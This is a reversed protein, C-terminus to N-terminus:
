RRAPALYRRFWEAALRVVEDLAGAQDFRQTARPFISLQARSRLQLLAQRNLDVVQDDRGGAILLVSARVDALRPAALDPRGGRSVIASIRDGAEAAAWLSVGAGPGAGFCGIPLARLEPQEGAWAAAALLRGAARPIDRGAHRDLEEQPTLLDLLLTALRSRHLIAAVRRNRPNFRSSGSCHAFVVLGTAHEPVVLDGAMQAGPEPSAITAARHVSPQEGFPERIEDGPEEGLDVYAVGSELGTGLVVEDAEAGLSATTEDFGTPLALVVRRPRRARVAHVAARLTEGSAVGDDVVVASRGEIPFQGARDPALVDLPADLADAVVLAVPVSARRLGFVVPDELQRAQLAEALSREAEHRDRFVRQQAGEPM